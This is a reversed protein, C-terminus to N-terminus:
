KADKIAQNTGFFIMAGSQKVVWDTEEAKDDKNDEAYEKGKEFATKAADKDDFYVVTVTEFKDDVTKSGSIVTDVGDVGLMKLGAPVFTSDKAAAYGNDKLAAIADDPNKAPAGCSVLTVCLMAAVLVFAVISAFKKMTKDELLFSKSGKRSVTLMIASEGKFHM